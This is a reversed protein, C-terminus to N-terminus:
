ERGGSLRKRVLVSGISLVFEKSPLEDNKWDIDRDGDTYTHQM